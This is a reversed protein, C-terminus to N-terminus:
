GVFGSVSVFICLDVNKGVVIDWGRKLNLIKGWRAVIHPFYFKVDFRLDRFRESQHSHIPFFNFDYSIICFFNYRVLYLRVQVIIYQYFQVLWYVKNVNVPTIKDIGTIIENVTCYV